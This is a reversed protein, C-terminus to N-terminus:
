GTAQNDDDIIEGLQDARRQAEARHKDMWERMAQAFAGKITLNLLRAQMKFQALKKINFWLGYFQEDKKTAM